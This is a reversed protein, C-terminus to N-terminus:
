TRLKQPEYLFEAAEMALQLKTKSGNDSKDKEETEDEDESEKADLDIRVKTSHRSWFTLRCRIINFSCINWQQCKWKELILYWIFIIM